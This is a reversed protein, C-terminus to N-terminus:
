VSIQSYRVRGRGGILNACVPEVIRNDEIESRHRDDLVGIGVVVDDLNFDDTQDLVDGFVHAIVPEGVRRREVIARSRNRVSLIDRDSLRFQHEVLFAVQQGDEGAIGDGVRDGNIMGKIGVGLRLVDRNRINQGVGIKRQHITRDGRHDDPGIAARRRDNHM